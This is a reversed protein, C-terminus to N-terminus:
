ETIGAAMEEMVKVCDYGTHNEDLKKGSVFVRARGDEFRYEEQVTEEKRSDHLMRNFDNMIGPVVKAAMGLGKQIGYIRVIGKSLEARAEQETMMLNETRKAAADTYVTMTDALRSFSLCIYLTMGKLVSCVIM